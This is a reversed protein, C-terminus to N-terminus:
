KILGKTSFSYDYVDRKSKIRVLLKEIADPDLNHAYCAGVIAGVSCGAISQVAINNKKLVKLAGIQAFGRAGGGSLVLGVRVM